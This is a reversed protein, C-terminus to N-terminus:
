ELVTPARREKMQLLKKMIYIHTTQATVGHVLKSQDCLSTGKRHSMSGPQIIVRASMRAHALIRAAQGFDRRRTSTYCFASRFATVCM